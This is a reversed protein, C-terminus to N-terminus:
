KKSNVEYGFDAVFQVDLSYYDYLKVVQGESSDFTGSVVMNTSNLLNELDTKDFEFDLKSKTSETVIQTAGDVAASLVVEDSSLHHLVVGFDNIFYLEINIDLPFGNDVLISLTGETFGVPVETTEIEFDSTDSLVLNKISAILPVDINIKSFISAGSHIFDNRAGTNGEPNLIIDLDFIFKDPLISLLDNANDLTVVTKQAEFTLGNELARLMTFPGSNGNYTIKQGTVSNLATLNNITISAGVGIENDVELEINVTEFDIEGNIEEWIDLDITDSVNTTDGGLYGRAYSPKIKTVGITLGITDELSIDLLGNTADIQAQVTNLFSNFEKNITDNNVTFDFDFDNFFFNTDQQNDQSNYTDDVTTNFEFQKGGNVANPIQYQFHLDTPISSYAQVNVVGSDIRAYTLEVGGEAMVPVVDGYNVVEQAPFQAIARTVKIDRISAGFALFESYDLIFMADDKALTFGGVEITLEGRVPNEGITEALNTTESYVSNAKITDIVGSVLEVGDSSNKVSYTLGIVDFTTANEINIDFFAEKIYAEEIFNSIDIESSTNTSGALATNLLPLLLSSYSGGDEINFFPISVESILDGIVTTDSINQDDLGLSGLTLFRQFPEISLSVLSGLPNELTYVDNTYVISLLNNADTRVLSSTDILDKIQLSTSALPTLVEVDWEPGTFKKKCGLVMLSVLCIYFIKGKM